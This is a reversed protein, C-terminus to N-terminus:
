SAQVEVVVDFADVPLQLVVALAEAAM